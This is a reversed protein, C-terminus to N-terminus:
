KRKEKYNPIDKLVESILDGTVYYQITDRFHQFTEFLVEEARKSDFNNYVIPQSYSNLAVLVLLLTILKKM